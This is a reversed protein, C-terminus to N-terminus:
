RLAAILAAELEDPRIIILIDDGDDDGHKSVLDRVLGVVDERRIVRPRPSQDVVNIMRAHNPMRRIMGREELGRIIRNIGSKSALGLADKMEDYSPSVGANAAQYRKIFSLLSQQVHTMM